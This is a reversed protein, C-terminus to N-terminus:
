GVQLRKGGRAQILWSDQDQYQTVIKDYFALNGNAVEASLRYTAGILAEHNDIAAFKTQEDGDLSYPDAPGNSKLAYLTSLLAKREDGNLDFMEGYPQGPTGAIAAVGGKRVTQVGPTATDGYAFENRADLVVRGLVQGDHRFTYEEANDFRSDMRQGRRVQDAQALPALLKSIEPRVQSGAEVANPDAATQSASLRPLVPIKPQLYAMAGEEGPTLDVFLTAKVNTRCPGTASFDDIETQKQILDVAMMGDPGPKVGGVVVPQNLIEEAQHRLQELAVRATGDMPAEQVDKPLQGYLAQWNGDKQPGGTKYDNYVKSEFDRFQVNTDVIDTLEKNESERLPFAKAQDPNHGGNQAVFQAFQPRIFM